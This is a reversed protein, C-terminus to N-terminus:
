LASYRRMVAVATKIGDVAASTIGGAYGAGEGAPYINDSGVCLRTENDRLIRVPASTRTEAGTLLADPSAFGNIARDFVPIAGRIGKTVFEPLYNDPSAYRVGGGMYTPCVTSSEHTPMGGSLFDGVTIVPASYDKGGASFAAREIKRQFEIACIPTGGYDERFVSCVVASNSNKGSRAHYSMGNTVVAGQESTAAIVEGGPCMCFTYVGRVKTNHSLAYEAHGLAPHGAYKGYMARDILETPHEIRMGVSFPKAEISFGDKILMEYTDRSSHGIAMILAGAPIDGKDTTVSFVRNDRRNVGCFKTRYLVKGGLECVRALVRDVIGLLIDTGVHPKALTLISEPAGFDVFRRLVYSILPDNTRTVLKGDSFTGAGGAGFQINTDPDLVRTRFFRSVEEKRETTTAGREIVVPHYGNEALMLAAFMGCPGSGVIVPPASLKEDGYSVVPTESVLTAISKERLRGALKDDIQVKIEAAVTYILSVADKKRADVSKRYISYVVGDTKLGASRLRGGAVSFAEQESADPSLRINNILLTATDSM